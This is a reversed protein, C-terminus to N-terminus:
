WRTLPFMQMNVQYVRDAKQDQQALALLRKRLQAIEEKATAFSADSLTLTVTSMDRRESAHRAIAERALDSMARQFAAVHVPAFDKGTTIVASTQRYRGDPAKVILGLRRLTDVAQRAQRVTIPPDLKKALTQYDGRFDHFFLLERIASYYWRSYFEHQDKGVVEARVGKSALLREYYHNKEDVGKAQCFRVLDEFYQQESPSLKLAAAFKLILPGTLNRRGALVEAFFGSSRLGIRAALFRQSYKPDQARHQEYWDRLFARYDSYNHIDPM